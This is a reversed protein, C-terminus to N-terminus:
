AAYKVPEAQFYSRIREPSRQITRMVARTTKVMGDTTGSQPKQTLM